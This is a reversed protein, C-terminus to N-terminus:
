VYSVAKYHTPLYFVWLESQTLKPKSQMVQLFDIEYVVGKRLRLGQRATGDILLLDVTTDRRAALIASPHRRVNFLNNFSGLQEFDTYHGQKLTGVVTATM